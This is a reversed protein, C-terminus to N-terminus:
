HNTNNIYELFHPDFRTNRGDVLLFPTPGKPAPPFVDNLDFYKLIKVLIETTIGGSKFCFTLCDITKNNFICKPGGPYHKGPGCNTIINIKGHSQRVPDVTINIRKGWQMKPKHFNSQFIVVCCVPQGNASIFPLVTFSGESTSAM